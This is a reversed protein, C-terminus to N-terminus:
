FAKHESNDNQKKVKSKQIEINNLMEYKPSPIKGVKEREQCWVKIDNRASRIRLVAIEYHLAECPERLFRMDGNTSKGGTM